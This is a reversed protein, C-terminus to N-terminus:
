RRGPQLLQPRVDADAAACSYLTTRSRRSRKRPSTASVATRSCCPDTKSRFGARTRSRWPWERRSAASAVTDPLVIGSVTIEDEDLVEVILRDGLPQLDM